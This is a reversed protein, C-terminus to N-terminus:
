GVAIGIDAFSVKSSQFANPDTSLAAVIATESATLRIDKDPEDLKRRFISRALDILKASLDYEVRWAALAEEADPILQLRILDAGNELVQQWPDAASLYDGANWFAATACPGGPHSEFLLFQLAGAEALRRHHEPCGRFVAETSKHCEEGARPCRSGRVSYFAGVVCSDKGEFM